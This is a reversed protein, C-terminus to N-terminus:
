GEVHKWTKGQKIRGIVSFHVNFMNAIEQLTYNESLLKKIVVVKDETLKSMHLNSGKIQRDRENRQIMNEDHSGISLHNINICNPNDCSHLVHESQTIEGHNMIYIYRSMQMTKRKGDVTTSIRPYGNKDKYHSTCIHCGNENIVYEIEKKASM